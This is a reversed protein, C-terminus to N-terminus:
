CLNKLIFGTAKLSDLSAGVFKEGDMVTFSWTDQVAPATVHKEVNQLAWLPLIKEKIGEIENDFIIDM